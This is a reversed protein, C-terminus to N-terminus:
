QGIYRIRFDTIDKNNIVAGKIFNQLEEDTATNIYGTSSIQWKKPELKQYTANTNLLHKTEENYPICQEWYGTVCCYHTDYPTKNIHSFFDIKWVNEDSDRVLVKDFTKFEFQNQNM